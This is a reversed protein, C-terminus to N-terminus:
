LSSLLTRACREGILYANIQTHNCTLVPCVSLDAVRLGQVGIVRFETDVVAQAGGRAGMRCTGMSHYGQGLNQRIFERITEDDDGAPAHVVERIYSKYADAKAIKMAQKITEIAIRQDYPHEFFHPNVEPLDRPDASQLRVTGLSLNNQLLLEHHMYVNRADGQFAVPGSGLWIEANPRTPEMMFSQTDQDLDHFESSDFLGKLKPFAVSGSTGFVNHPGTKDRAYMADAEALLEPSEFIQNHALNDDDVLYELTLISHDFMNQGVNPNDVVCHINLSELHERPGIGSLMLTKPSGFTGQCLIIERCCFLHRPKDSAQDTIEVGVARPTTDDFLIKDVSTRTLIQLNPLRQQTEEDLFRNAAYSRVGGANNFQALGVGVPNGSNNDPCFDIGTEHCAQFFMEVGPTMVDGFGVKLPGGVGHNAPDPNAYQEFGPPRQPRFDELEKMLPLVNNWKWSKDGTRCAWAEYDAAPGRALAQYNVASTGGLQKGRLFVIERNNLEKQPVSPIQWIGDTDQGFLQYVFKGPILADPSESSDRGAEIVLIKSKTQSALRAAILCGATGGGCIIYDFLSGELGDEDSATKTSSYM